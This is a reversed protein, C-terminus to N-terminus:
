KRRRRTLTQTDTDKRYGREAGAECGKQDITESEPDGVERSWPQRYRILKQPPVAEDADGKAQPARRRGVAGVVPYCGTLHSPFIRRPHPEGAGNHAATTRVRRDVGTTLHPLPPPATSSHRRAPESHRKAEQAKKPGTSKLDNTTSQRKDRKKKKTTM